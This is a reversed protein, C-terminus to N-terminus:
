RMAIKHFCVWPNWHSEEYLIRAFKAADEPDFKNLGLEKLRKDHTSNIQFIGGDTSGDRNTPNYATPKLGSECKAIEIATHPDEPFTKRILAKVNELTWYGDLEKQVEKLRATTSAQIIQLADLEAQLEKKRIVDKAAQIAEEDTMWAEKTEPVVEMTVTEKVYNYTEDDKLSLIVSIVGVVM